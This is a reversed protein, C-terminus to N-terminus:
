AETQPAPAPREAPLPHHFPFALEVEGATARRVWGAAIAEAIHLALGFVVHGVRPTGEEGEVMVGYHPPEAVPAGGPAGSETVSPADTPIASKAAM